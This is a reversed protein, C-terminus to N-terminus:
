EGRKMYLAPRLFPEPPVVAPGTIRTSPHFVRHWCEVFVAYTRPGDSSPKVVHAAGGRGPRHSVYLNGDGDIGGGTASVILSGEDSVHWEISAALAGTRKPCYRRADGAIDPGLRNEFFDEVAADVKAEWGPEFEVRGAM